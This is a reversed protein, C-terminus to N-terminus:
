GKASLSDDRRSSRPPAHCRVQTQEVDELDTEALEIISRTSSPCGCAPTPTPTATARRAAASAWAASASSSASTSRRARAATPTAATAACSRASSRSPTPCRPCACSRRPAATASRAPHTGQARGAQAPQPAEGPLGHVLRRPRGPRSEAWRTYCGWCRGRRLESVAAGCVGCPLTARDVEVSMDGTFVRVPCPAFFSHRKRIPGQSPEM